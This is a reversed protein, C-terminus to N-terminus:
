DPLRVDQPKRGLERQTSVAALVPQRADNPAVYILGIDASRRHKAGLLDAGDSQRVITDLRNFFEKSPKYFFAHAQSCLSPSQLPVFSCFRSFSSLCPFLSSILNVLLPLHGHLPTPPPAGVM